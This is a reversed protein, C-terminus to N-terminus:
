QRITKCVPTDPTVWSTCDFEAGSAASSLQEYEALYTSDGSRRWEKTENSVGIEFSPLFVVM